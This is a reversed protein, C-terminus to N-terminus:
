RAYDPEERDLVRRWADLHLRADMKDGWAGHHNRRLKEPLGHLPQGTQLATMQYMATREAMYCEDFADHVTPGAVTVGHGRMVMISKDGMLRAIRDGEENQHVPEDGERDYVMRDNLLLNNHHSLAFETDRLLSLSTLWRPHVHIVCTAAPNQLHIRAHIHFAVKRLEGSGQLVRGDLDCIILDSACLEQFLYGRPNILFRPAEGPLMLSNHNGIQENWGLRAAVRFVAAMDCRMAWEAEEESSRTLQRITTAM